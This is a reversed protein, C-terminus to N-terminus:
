QIPSYNTPTMFTSDVNTVIPGGAKEKSAAWATKWEPDDMFAKWSRERAERDPYALVYILTNAKDSPTWYAILSMGHKVFLFNTHNRFRENLNDMKGPATTYVRMEFLRGPAAQGSEASAPSEANAEIPPSLVISLMLVVVSTISYTLSSRRRRGIASFM